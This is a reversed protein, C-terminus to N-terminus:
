NGAWQGIELPYASSAKAFSGSRSRAAMVTLETQHGNSPPLRTEFRAERVVVGSESLEQGGAEGARKGLMAAGQVVLVFKAQLAAPWYQKPRNESLWDIDCAKAVKRVWDGKMMVPM